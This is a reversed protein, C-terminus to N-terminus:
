SARREDLELSGGYYGNSDNRYDITCVGNNTTIKLGYYSVVEDIDPHKATGVNGQDPLDVNEISQVTGCLADPADLSEIWSISCCDGEARLTVPPGDAIQFTIWDGDNALEYGVIRKGILAREISDM